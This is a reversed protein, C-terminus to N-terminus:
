GVKNVRKNNGRVVLEVIVAFTVGGVIIMALELLNMHQM